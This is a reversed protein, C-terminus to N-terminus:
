AGEGADSDTPRKGRFFRLWSVAISLINFSETVIGAIAGTFINYVLWLPCCVFFNLIRLLRANSDWLAFTFVAMSVSPLLSPLGDYTLFGVAFFGVAFLWTYPSRLASAGEREGPLRGRSNRIYLVVRLFLGLLNCYLGAYAGLLLFQAGFLVSSLIQMLLLGRVSKFQFSLIIVCAALTGFVQSWIFPTM